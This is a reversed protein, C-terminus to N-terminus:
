FKYSFGVRAVNINYRGWVYNSPSAPFATSFGIANAGNGFSYFLYEARVLWNKTIMWEAGGGVAFGTQTNTFSVTTNYGGPGTASASYKFGGFAVGGSAYVLVAPTVLYGVRGRVSALWQPSTSMTTSTPPPLPVGGVIWPATSFGNASAVGSLDGELGAVWVPAVQWNYGMHVGGIFGGGKDTTSSVIPTNQISFNAPDSFWTGGVDGGVYFGTWSYVPVPPPPAKLAMDAAHTISTFGFVALATLLSIQLLRM